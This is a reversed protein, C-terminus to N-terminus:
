IAKFILSIFFFLKCSMAIITIILISGVSTLIAFNMYSDEDSVEAIAFETFHYVKM